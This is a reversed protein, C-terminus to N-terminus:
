EGALVEKFFAIFREETTVDLGLKAYFKAREINKVFEKNWYTGLLYLASASEDTIRAKKDMFADLLALTPAIKELDQVSEMTALLASAYLGHENKPDISQAAEFLEDDVAGAKLVLKLAKVQAPVGELSKWHAKAVRALRGAVPSDPGQEALFALVAELAALRHEEDAAEFESIVTTAKELLALGSERLEGLHKIYAVPGGAQYGTRGFVEGEVTMLLVTPYGQVGYQTALERNREPNPVKALIEEDRPFDLSVLVYDKRAPGDFEPKSFVEDHLRICWGCWDSGTFDVLLHKGQEKALLVAKDYDEVWGEGAVSPSVLAFSSLAIPAILRIM